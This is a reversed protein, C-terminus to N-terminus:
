FLFLCSPFLPFFPIHRFPRLPLHLLLFLFLLVFLFVYLLFLLLVLLLLLLTFPFHKNRYIHILGQAMVTRCEQPFQCILSLWMM